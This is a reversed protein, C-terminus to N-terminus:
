WGVPAREAVDPQAHVLEDLVMRGATRFKEVGAAYRPACPLHKCGEERTLQVRVLDHECHSFGDGM